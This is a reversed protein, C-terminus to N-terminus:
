SPRESVKIVYSEADHIGRPLPLDIGSAGMTQETNKCHGLFYFVQAHTWPKQLNQIVKRKVGEDDRYRTRSAMTWDNYTLKQLQYIFPSIKLQSPVEISTM